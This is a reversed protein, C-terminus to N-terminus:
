DLDDDIEMSDENDDDGLTDAGITAEHNPLVELCEEAEEPVNEDRSKGKKLVVNVTEKDKIENKLIRLALKNLIENQILRNLPRAGM